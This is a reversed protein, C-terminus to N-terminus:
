DTAPNEAYYAALAAKQTIALDDIIFGLALARGGYHAGLYRGFTGDKEAAYAKWPHIDSRTNPLKTVFGVTRGLYSVRHWVGLLTELKELKLENVNM